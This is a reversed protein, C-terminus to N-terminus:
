RQPRPESSRGWGLTLRPPVSGAAAPSPEAALADESATNSDPDFEEGTQRCPTCRWFRLPTELSVPLYAEIPLDESWYFCDGAWLPANTLSAGLWTLLIDYFRRRRWVVNTSGCNPCSGDQNIASM